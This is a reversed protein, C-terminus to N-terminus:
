GGARLGLAGAVSLCLYLAPMYLLTSVLLTAATEAEGREYTEAVSTMITASSVGGLVVGMLIGEGDVGLAALLLGTLLPQLLLKVGCSAGLAWPDFRMKSQVVMVGIAFLACPISAMGFSKLGSALLQPLGLGSLSVLMGALASSILPTKLTSLSLEKLLQARSKGAKMRDFELLAVTPVLELSVLLVMLTSAIMARRSGEFLYLMIPLGVFAVNSFSATTARITSLSRGAGAVRRSYLYMIGWALSIGGLCGLLFRLRLIERIPATSMSYFVLAPLTFYFVFANLVTASNDPLLKLRWSLAGAAMMFLLPLVAASVTYLMMDM